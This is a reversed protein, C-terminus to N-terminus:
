IPRFLLHWVGRVDVTVGDVTLYSAANISFVQVPANKITIGAASGPVMSDPACGGCWVWM